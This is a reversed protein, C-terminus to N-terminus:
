EVLEVTYKVKKVTDDKKLRNTLDKWIHKETMLGSPYASQDVEYTVVVNYKKVNKAM